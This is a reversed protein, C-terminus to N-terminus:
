DRSWREVMEEHGVQAEELTTYREMDLEDPRDDEDHFVMTEFILPPGEGYRHDNGLWVTSVWTNDDLTTRAVRKYDFDEFKKAWEMLELQTGDKDYFNSM